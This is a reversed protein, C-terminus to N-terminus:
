IPTVGIMNLYQLYCNLQNYNIFVLKFINSITWIWVEQYNNVRERKPNRYLSFRTSPWNLLLFVVMALCCLLYLYPPLSKRWGSVQLKLFPWSNIYILIDWVPSLLCLEMVLIIFLINSGLNIFSFQILTLCIKTSLKCM